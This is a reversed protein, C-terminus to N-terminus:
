ERPGAGATGVPPGVRLFLERYHIQRRRGARDAPVVPLLDVRQHILRDHFLANARDDDNRSAGQEAWVPVGSTDIQIGPESTESVSGFSTVESDSRGNLFKEGTGDSRCRVNSTRERGLQLLPSMMFFSPNITAATAASAMAAGDTALASFITM